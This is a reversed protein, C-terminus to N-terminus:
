PYHIGGGLITQNDGGLKGMNAPLTPMVDGGNSNTSVVAHVDNASGRGHTLTPATDIPDQVRGDQAHNEYYHAAVFGGSIEGNRAGIGKFSRATLVESVDEKGGGGVAKYAVGHRDVGTLTYGAGDENIGFGNGGKRQDTRPKLKDGDLAITEGDRPAGGVMEGHVRNRGRSAAAIEQGTRRRPPNDGAISKSEFLIEAAKTVDGGICGVVWVRRRRQPIAREMRVVGGDAHHCDAVRIYQADLTRYAVGYGCDSLATLFEPFSKDSLVGAVNEWIVFRPRLERVLRVFEFALSSRTNSGEEMGRRKGAVSVDQCPTGGAFIDLREDLVIRVSGNTIEKGENKVEIKSMDGLNPVDPFHSKLVACPFPEIESFFVAKM